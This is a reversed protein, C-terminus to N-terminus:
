AYKSSFASLFLDEILSRYSHILIAWTRAIGPSNGHSRIKFNINGALQAFPLDVFGATYSYLKAISAIWNMTSVDWSWSPIVATWDSLSKGRVMHASCLFHLIAFLAPRLQRQWGLSWENLM